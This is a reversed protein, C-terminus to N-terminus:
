VPAGYPGMDNVAFTTPGNSHFVTLTGSGTYGQVDFTIAGTSTSKFYVTAMASIDGSTSFNYHWTDWIITGGQRIRFLSSNNAISNYFRCSFTCQYIRNNVVNVSGTMGSIVTPTTTFTSNSTNNTVLLQNGWPANWGPGKRWATGNYTYLGESSDNSGIYAVMGDFPSTIATDRAAITAFYMTSQTMLYGNVEAATLVDGTAFTKFGSGVPM